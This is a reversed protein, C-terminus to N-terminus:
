VQAQGRGKVGAGERVGLRVKGLKVTISESIQSILNFNSQECVRLLFNQELMHQSCRLRYVICRYMAISRYM